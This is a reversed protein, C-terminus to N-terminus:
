LASRPIEFLPILKEVIISNSEKYFEQNAISEDFRENFIRNLFTFSSEFTYNDNLDESSKNLLASYTSYNFIIRLLSNICETISNEAYGINLGFKSMEQHGYSGFTTLIPKNKILSDKVRGSPHFKYNAGQPMWVFDCSSILQSYEMSSLTNGVISVKILDLAANLNDRFNIIEPISGVIMIIIKRTINEHIAILVKTLFDAMDETFHYDPTNIYIKTESNKFRLNDETMRMQSGEIFIDKVRLNLELARLARANTPATLYINNPIKLEGILSRIKLYELLHKTNNLNSSSDLIRDRYLLNSIVKIPTFQFTRLLLLYLVINSDYALIFTPQNPYENIERSLSDIYNIIDIANSYDISPMAPVIWEIDEKFNKSAHVSFDFNQKIFENRLNNQNMFIHGALSSEVLDPSLSIVRKKM